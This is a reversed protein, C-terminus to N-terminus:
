VNAELIDILEEPCNEVAYLIDREVNAQVEEDPLGFYENMIGYPDFDWMARVLEALVRDDVKGSRVVEVLEATNM